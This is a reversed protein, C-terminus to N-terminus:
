SPQVLDLLTRRVDEPVYPKRIRWPARSLPESLARDDCGTVLAFPVGIAALAAAVPTVEGDALRVDLLAADPRETRLIALAEAVSPALPLVDCGLERLMGELDVAIFAEDEVVLVKIGLLDLSMPWGMGGANMEKWALSTTTAYACDNM